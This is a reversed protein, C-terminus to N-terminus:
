PTTIALVSGRQTDANPYRYSAQMQDLQLLSDEALPDDMQILNPVKTREHISPLRQLQSIARRNGIALSTDALQTSPQTSYDNMARFDLSKDTISHPPKVPGATGLKQKSRLPAAASGLIQIKPIYMEGSRLYQRVNEQLHEVRLFPINQNELLYEGPLGGQGNKIKRVAMKSENIKALLEHYASQQRKEFVTSRSLPNESNSTDLGQRSGSQDQSLNVSNSLPKRRTMKLITKQRQHIKKQDILDSLDAPVKQAELIGSKNAMIVTTSRQRELSKEKKTKM